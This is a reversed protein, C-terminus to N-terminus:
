EKANTEKVINQKFKLNVAVLKANQSFLDTMIFLSKWINEVEADPYTALIQNFDKTSFYQECV